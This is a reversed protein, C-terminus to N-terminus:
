LLLVELDRQSQEGVRFVEDGYLNFIAAGINADVPLGKLSLEYLLVTM